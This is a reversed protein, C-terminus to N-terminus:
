KVILNSNMAMAADIAADFHEDGDSHEAFAAERQLGALIHSRMREIKDAAEDALPGLYFGNSADERSRLRQVLDDM